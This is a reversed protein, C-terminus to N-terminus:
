STSFGPIVVRSALMAPLPNLQQVVISAGVYNKHSFIRGRNQDCPEFPLQWKKMHIMGRGITGVASQLQMEGWVTRFKHPIFM